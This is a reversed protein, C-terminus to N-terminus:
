RVFRRMLVLSAAAALAAWAIPPYGGTEPLADGETGAPPFGADTCLEIARENTRELEARTEPSSNEAPMVIGSGVSACEYVVDGGYILKGDKTVELPLGTAGGPQRDPGNGATWGVVLADRRVPDIGVEERSM